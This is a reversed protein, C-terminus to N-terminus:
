EIQPRSLGVRWGGNKSGTVNVKFKGNVLGFPHGHGIVSCDRTDLETLENGSGTAILRTFLKHQAVSGSAAVHTSTWDTVPVKGDSLQYPQQWYSSLLNSANTVQNDATGSSTGQQVCQISLGTAQGSANVSSAVTFQGFIEPNHYSDNLRKELEVGWEDVTYSGPRPRIPIPMEVRQEKLDGAELEDQLHGFYHYMLTENEIDILADRRIKVSEVAIEANAPVKLPSTFHNQFSSPAEIGALTRTTSVRAEGGYQSQNSSAVILSM